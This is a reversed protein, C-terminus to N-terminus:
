FLLLRSAEIGFSSEVEEEDLDEWESLDSGSLFGLEGDLQDVDRLLDHHVAHVGLALVHGVHVGGDTVLHAVGEVGDMRLNLDGLSLEVVVEVGDAAM